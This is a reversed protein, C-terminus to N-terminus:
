RIRNMLGTRLDINRVLM